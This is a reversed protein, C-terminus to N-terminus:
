VPQRRAPGRGGAKKEAYYNENVITIRGARKTPTVLRSELGTGDTRRITRTGNYVLDNNIVTAGRATRTVNGTKPSNTIFIRKKSKKNPFKKSRPSIDDAITEQTIAAPTVYNKDRTTFLTWASWATTRAAVDEAADTRWRIRVKYRTRHKLRIVLRQKTLTTIDDFDNVNNAASVTIKLRNTPDPNVNSRRVVKGQWHPQGDRQEIQYSVERDTTPRGSLITVYDAASTGVETVKPNSGVEVTIAM